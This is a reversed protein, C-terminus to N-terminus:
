PKIRGELETIRRHLKQILDLMPPIIMRHNWDEVQGDIIEVAIPYHELLEEAIFGPIDVNYRQDKESIYDLNYKYQRVPVDLLKESDLEGNLEVIDHKYRRSSATSRATWYTSPIVMNAAATTTTDYTGQTKIRNACQINGSSIINGTANFTGDTALNGTFTGGTKPVLNVGSSDALLVSSYWGGTVESSITMLYLGGGNSVSYLGAQGFTTDWLVGAGYSGFNIAGTHIIKFHGNNFEWGSTGISGSGGSQYPILGNVTTRIWNSNSGSSDVLGYFGNTLESLMVKHGIPGVKLDNIYASGNLVFKDHSLVSYDDGEYSSPDSVSEPYLRIEGDAMYCTKNSSYSILKGQLTANVASISGDELIKFNSNATVLGELVINKATIKATTSDLNIKAILYNGTIDAESVKLEISKANQTIQSQLGKETDTITSRTEEIERQLVNSKGKLRKIEASMTNEMRSYKEEGTASYSDTIVQIGSIVRRFVYTDINITKTNIRILDGVEVCPSGIANVTAPRYEVVKIANLINEAIPTLEETSKGYVLFNDQIVYTNDGDGVVVGIDNEEMRIQLKSIKQVVFDEYTPSGKYRRRSFEIANTGLPFLEDSPYLDNSPYIEPSKEALYVYRFKGNRGINGFCGNIECIASIVMKGTIGTGSMTKSILMSDNVLSIEEEELGFHSIFANRFDKLPIKVETGEVETAFMSEYWETVDANQIEYMKDYATVTRFSRDASPVDSEVKYVGFQFPNEVDRNLINKVTLVKDKLSVFPNRIKFTLKASECSGFNLIQESCLSEELEFSEFHLDSNTIEGEDFSMVIQKYTSDNNYLDSNIYDIM